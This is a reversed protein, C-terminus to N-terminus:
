RACRPRCCGTSPRTSGSRWRTGTTTAAPGRGGGARRDPGHRGGRRGPLRHRGHGERRLRARRPRRADRPVVAAAGSPHEALPGRVRRAVRKGLLRMYGASVLADIGDIRSSTGVRRPRLRLPRRLRRARHRGDRRRAGRRADLARVGPRDSLVLAIHPRIAPDDLLAQLNTGSGSVLVAIRAGDPRVSDRTRRGWPGRRLSRRHRGFFARRLAGFAAGRWGDRSVTPSTRRTRAAATCRTRPGPAPGRARARIGTRPRPCPCGPPREGRGHRRSREGTSRMM